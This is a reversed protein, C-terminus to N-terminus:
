NWIKLRFYTGSTETFEFTGPMWACGGKSRSSSVVIKETVHLHLFDYWIKAAALTSLLCVESLVSEWNPQGKPSVRVASFQPLTLSSSDYQWLCTPQTFQLSLRVLLGLWMGLRLFHPLTEKPSPFLRLAHLVFARWSLYIHRPINEAKLYNNLHWWPTKM